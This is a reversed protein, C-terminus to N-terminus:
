WAAARSSTSRRSVPRQLEPRGGATGLSARLKLETIAKVPWWKEATVRYAGSYRYYWNEQEEPGFLSSGDQRVLGDIILKGRYDAAGSVFFSNTRITESTSSIFRNVANNLSRVGPTSFQSGTATTLDNTEREM